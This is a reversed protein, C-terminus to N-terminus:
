PCFHLQIAYKNQMGHAWSIKKADKMKGDWGGIEQVAHRCLVPSSSPGKQLAGGCFFYSNNSVVPM